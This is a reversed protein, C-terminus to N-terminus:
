EPHNVHYVTGAGAARPMPAFGQATPFALLKAFSDVPLFACLICIFPMITKLVHQGGPSTLLIYPYYLPAFANICDAYPLIKFYRICKSYVHFYGLPGSGIGRMKGRLYLCYFPNVFKIGVFNVKNNINIVHNDMRRLFAVSEYIIWSIPSPLLPLAFMM